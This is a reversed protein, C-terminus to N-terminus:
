FYIIGDHLVQRNVKEESGVYTSSLTFYLHCSTRILMDSGMLASSPLHFACAALSRRFDSGGLLCCDLSCALNRLVLVRFQDNMPHISANLLLIGMTMIGARRSTLSKATGTM